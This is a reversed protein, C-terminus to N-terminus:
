REKMDAITVYYVLRRHLYRVFRMPKNCHRCKKSSARQMAAHTIATRLSCTTKTVNSANSVNKALLEQVAAIRPHVADGNELTVLVDANQCVLESKFIELEQAEIIYGADILRLQLMTINSEHDTASTPYTTLNSM